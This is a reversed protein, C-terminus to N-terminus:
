AIRRDDVRQANATFPQISLPASAFIQFQKANQMRTQDGMIPGISEMVWAAEPYEYGSGAVPGKSVFLAPKDPYEPNSIGGENSSALCVAVKGLTRRMLEELCKLEPKVLWHDLFVIQQERELDDFYCNGITISRTWDIRFGGGKAQEYCHVIMADIANMEEFAEDQYRMQKQIACELSNCQAVASPIGALYGAKLAKAQHKIGAINNLANQYDSNHKLWQTRLEALNM